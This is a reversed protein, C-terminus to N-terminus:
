EFLAVFAERKKIPDPNAGQCYKETRGLMDSTDFEALRALCEEKIDISIHKSAFISKVM